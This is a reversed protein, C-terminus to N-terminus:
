KSWPKLCETLFAAYLDSFGLVKFKQDISVGEYTYMRIRLTEANTLKKTFANLKMKDSDLKDTIFAANKTYNWMEEVPDSKDIIYILKRLYQSEGVYKDTRVFFTLSRKASKDLECAFTVSGNITSSASILFVQKQQKFDDINTELQWSDSTEARALSENSIGLLLACCVSIMLRMGNRVIEGDFVRDSLGCEKINKISEAIVAPRAGEPFFERAVSAM